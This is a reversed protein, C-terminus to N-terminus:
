KLIIAFNSGFPVVVLEDFHPHAVVIIAVQRYFARIRRNQEDLWLNGEASYENEHASGFSSCLGLSDNHARRCSKGVTNGFYRQHNSVRISSDSLELKGFGWLDLPRDM